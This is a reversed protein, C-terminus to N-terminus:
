PTFKDVVYIEALKKVLEFTLAKANKKVTSWLKSDRISDLYQHGEYTISSYVIKIIKSDSEISNAEIYEAELLKTSAYAIDARSFDPMKECVQKLTLSPFSLSDDMVLNEELTLLLERVCDYNLKM